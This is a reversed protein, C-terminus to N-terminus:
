HTETMKSNGSYASALAEIGFQLLVDNWDESEASFFCPLLVRCNLGMEEMRGKLRMAHNIGAKNADRDAWVTVFKTGTIPKWSSLLTTFGAAFVPRGTSHAIALGNEIGECVNAHPSFPVRSYVRVAGNLTEEIRGLIKKAKEVPAKEPRNEDLYIRHLGVSRGDSGHMLSVISPFKIPPANKVESRDYYLQPNFRMNKQGRIVDLDSVGRTESFYRIAQHDDELESLPISTTWIEDLTKKRREIAKPDKSEDYVPQAVKRMPLAPRKIEPGNNLGFYQELVQLAHRPNGEQGDLFCILDIGTPFTGCTNCVGGGSKNFDKFVRFGDAKAGKMSHHIPCACRAMGPKGIAKQVSPFLSGIITDWRGEALDKVRDFGSPAITTTM